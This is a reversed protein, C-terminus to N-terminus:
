PGSSSAVLWRVLHPQSRSAMSRSATSAQRAQDVRYCRRPEQYGSGPSSAARIRSSTRSHRTSEDPLLWIRIWGQRLSRRAISKSSRNTTRCSVSLSRDLLPGLQRYRSWPLHVSRLANPMWVLIGVNSCAMTSGAKMKSRWRNARTAGKIMIKKQMQVTPLKFLNLQQLREMPTVTIPPLGWTGGRTPLQQKSQRARRLQPCARLRRIGIRRLNSCRSTLRLWVAEM